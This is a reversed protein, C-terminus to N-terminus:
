AAEPRSSAYVEDLSALFEEGTLAVSVRNPDALEADVEREGKQWEPTWFWAQDPDIPTLAAVPRGDRMLPVAQGATVAADDAAPVVLRGGSPLEYAHAVTM